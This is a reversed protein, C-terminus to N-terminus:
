EKWLQRLAIFTGEDLAQASADSKDWLYTGLLSATLIKRAEERLEADTTGFAALEARYVIAPEPSLVTYKSSDVPPTRAIEASDTPAISFASTRALFTALPSKSASTLTANASIHQMWRSFLPDAEWTSRSFDTKSFYGSVANALTVLGWAETAPDAFGVRVAGWSAQGSHESWPSGAISGICNWLSTDACDALLADARDALLVISPRTEAIIVTSQVFPQQRAYDLMAPFPALTLWLDPLASQPGNALRDLTVGASEDTIAVKAGMNARLDQCVDKFETSCVINLVGKNAPANPSTTAPDSKNDDMRSRIFVAGVIMLVTAIVAALRKLTV